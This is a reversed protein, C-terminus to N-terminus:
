KKPSIFHIVFVEDKYKFPIMVIDVKIESGDKKVVTVSLPSAILEESAKGYAEVVTKQDAELVDDLPTENEVWDDVAGYGLLDVFNQNCVKHTDDLYIYIAQPSELLIPKFMEAVENLIHVHHEDHAM